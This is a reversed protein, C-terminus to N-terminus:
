NIVSSASVGVGGISGSVTPVVTVGGPGIVIGAGLSPGYSPGSCGSLVVCLLLARRM